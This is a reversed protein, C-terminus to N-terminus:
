INGDTILDSDDGAVFGMGLITGLGFPGKYKIFESTGWITSFRRFELCSGTEFIWVTGRHLHPPEFLLGNQSPM